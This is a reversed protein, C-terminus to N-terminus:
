YEADKAASNRERADAGFLNIAPQNILDVMAYLAISTKVM